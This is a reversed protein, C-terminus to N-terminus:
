GFAPPIRINFVCERVLRMCINVFLRSLSHSGMMPMLNWPIDSRTNANRTNTMASTTIASSSREPILINLYEIFMMVLSAAPMITWTPTATM